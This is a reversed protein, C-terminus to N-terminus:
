KGDYNGRAITSTADHHMTRDALNIVSALIKQPDGPGRNRSVASNTYAVNRLAALVKKHAV